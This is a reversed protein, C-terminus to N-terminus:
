KKQAAISVKSRETTSTALRDEARPKALRQTASEELGYIQSLFYQDGYRNFILKPEAQSAKANASRIPVFATIRGDASQIKVADAGGLQALAFLYEGAPLAKDKIVFNFPVKAAILRDSQAQASAFVTALVAAIALITYTQKKM